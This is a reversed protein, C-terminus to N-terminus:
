FISIKTLHRWPCACGSHRKQLFRYFLEFSSCFIRFSANRSRRFCRCMSPIGLTGTGILFTRHWESTRPVLSRRRRRCIISSRFLLYIQMLFVLSIHALQSVFFSFSFFVFNMEDSLFVPLGRHAPCFDTQLPRRIFSPQSYWALTQICFLM